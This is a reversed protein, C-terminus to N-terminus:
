RIEFVTEYNPIREESESLYELVEDDCKDQPFCQVCVHDAVVTEAV